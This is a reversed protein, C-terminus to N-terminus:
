AGAEEAARQAATKKGGKKPKVTAEDKSTGGTVFEPFDDDEALHENQRRTLDTGDDAHDPMAVDLDAGTDVYSRPSEESPLRPTTGDALPDLLATDEISGVPAVPERGALLALLAGRLITPAQGGEFVGDLAKAVDDTTYLPEGLSESMEAPSSPTYYNSVAAIGTPILYSLVSAETLRALAVDPSRMGSARVDTLLEDIRDEISEGDRLYHNLM